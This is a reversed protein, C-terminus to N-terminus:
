GAGTVQIVPVRLPAAPAPTMKIDASGPSGSSSASLVKLNTEMGLEKHSDEGVPCYIEYTGPRLTLSLIARSGPQILATEQEIGQGEIELAHPISGVNTITFAVRGAAVTAESLEVKWESLKATVPIPEGSTGPHRAGLASVVFGLSSLAGNIIRYNRTM